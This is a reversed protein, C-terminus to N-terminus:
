DDNLDHNIGDDGGGGSSGSGSSGSGSSGGHDDFGIDDSGSSANHGSTVSRVNVGGTGTNTGGTGTNTGATAMDNVDDSQGAPRLGGHDDFAEARAQGGSGHQNRNRTSMRPDLGNDDPSNDDDEIVAAVPASDDDRKVLVKDHKTSSTDSSPSLGVSVGAAILAFGFVSALTVILGKLLTNM